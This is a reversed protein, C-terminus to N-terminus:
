FSLFPRVQTTHFCTLSQTYCLALLARCIEPMASAARLEGSSPSSLLCLLCLHLPILGLKSLLGLEELFCPGPRAPRASPLCRFSCHPRPQRGPQSPLAAPLSPSRSTQTSEASSQETIEGRGRRDTPCAGEGKEERSKLMSTYRQAKHPLVLPQFLLWFKFDPNTQQCACLDFLRARMFRRRPNQQQPLLLLAAPQAEWPQTEINLCKDKM